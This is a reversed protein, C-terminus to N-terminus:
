LIDFLYPADPLLVRSNDTISKYQRVKRSVSISWNQCIFIRTLQRQLDANSIQYKLDIVAM